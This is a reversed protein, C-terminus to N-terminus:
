WWTTVSSTPTGTVFACGKKYSLNGVWMQAPCDNMCGQGKVDLKEVKDTIKKNEMYKGGYTVIPKTYRINGISQKLGVVIEFSITVIKYYDYTM